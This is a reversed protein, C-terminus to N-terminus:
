SQEVMHSLIFKRVESTIELLGVVSSPYRESISNLVAISNYIKVLAESYDSSHDLVLAFNMLLGAYPKLFHVNNSKSLCHLIEEAESGSAKAEEITQYGTPPWISNSLAYALSAEYADRSLTVLERYIPIAERLALASSEEDGVRHYRIHLSNLAKAFGLLTDENRDAQLIIRNQELARKAYELAWEREGAYDASRSLGDLFHIYLGRNVGGYEQSLTEALPISASSVDFSKSYLGTDHYYNSLNTYAILLFTLISKNQPFKKLKEISDEAQKIADDLRGAQALGTNYRSWLLAEDETVQEATDLPSVTQELAAIILNHLTSSHHPIADAVQRALMKNPNAKLVKAAIDAISSSTEQSVVVVASVLTDLHSQLISFVVESMPSTHDTLRALVTLARKPDNQLITPTGFVEEALDSM